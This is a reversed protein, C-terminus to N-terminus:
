DDKEGKDHPNIVEIGTRGRHFLEHLYGASLQKAQKNPKGKPNLFGLDELVYKATSSIHWGFWIDTIASVVSLASIEKDNNASKYFDWMEKSPRLIM